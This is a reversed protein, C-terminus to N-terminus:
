KAYHFSLILAAREKVPSQKLQDVWDALQKRSVKLGGVKANLQYFEIERAPLNDLEIDTLREYDPPNDDIQLQLTCGRLHIHYIDEWAIFQNHLTRRHHKDIRKTQYFFQIGYITLSLKPRHRLYKILMLLAFGLGVLMLAQSVWVELDAQFWWAAAAGLVGLIFFVLTHSRSAYIHIENM